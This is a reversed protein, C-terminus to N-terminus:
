GDPEDYGTDIRPKAYYSSHWIEEHYEHTGAQDAQADHDKDKEDFEKKGSRFIVPRSADPDSLLFLGNKKFKDPVKCFIHFRSEGLINIQRGIYVRRNEIIGTEPAHEKRDPLVQLDAQTKDIGKIHAFELGHHGMLKTMERLAAHPKSTKHVVDILDDMIHKKLIGPVSAKKLTPRIDMTYKGYERL